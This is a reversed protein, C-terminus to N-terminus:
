KEDIWGKCIDVGDLVNLAYADAGVMDCVQQTVISGGLIIKLSDRLGEESLKAITEKMYNISTALIVSMALIDPKYTKVYNCFVEPKVDVGLDMVDFGTAIAASKFISKGLDHIDGEITGLLISGLSVSKEIDRSIDFEALNVVQEYIIGAMMLDSLTYKDDSYLQGIEELAKNLTTLIDQKSFGASLCRPAISMVSDEDLNVFMEKLLTLM